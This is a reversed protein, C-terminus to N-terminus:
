LLFFLYIIPAHPSNAWVTPKFYFFFFLVKRGTPDNCVAGPPRSCGLLVQPLPEGEVAGQSGRARNEEHEVLRNGARTICAPVSSSCHQTTVWSHSSWVWFGKSLALGAWEEWCRGVLSVQPQGACPVEPEELVAGHEKGPPVEKSKVEVCRM